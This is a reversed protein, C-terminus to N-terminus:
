SYALEIQVANILSTPLLTGNLRLDKKLQYMRQEWQTSAGRTLLYGTHCPRDCHLCDGFLTTIGDYALTIRTEQVM